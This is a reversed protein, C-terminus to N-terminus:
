RRPEFPIEAQKFNRQMAIRQNRSGLLRRQVRREWALASRAGALWSKDFLRKTAAAVDPSRTAIEALLAQAEALPQESLQTVLNLGAAESGSLMRGTMTLRKAQDVPMLEPLTVTLGMDPILGWKSELISLRADPTAIRFDCGLALQLGAGFCNGHIVAVVPVGIRRWRLCVDQFLNAGPGGRLVFGQLLRAPTKSISGFDLGACFSPGDGRLVIGRLTKDKALTKAASRLAQLMAWDMGNHKDGRVMLVQAVDGDRLIKVRENM